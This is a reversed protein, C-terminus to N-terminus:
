ICRMTISYKLLHPVYFSRKIMLECKSKDVRVASVKIYLITNIGTNQKKVIQVDAELREILGTETMQHQFLSFYHPKKESMLM